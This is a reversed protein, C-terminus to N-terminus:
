WSVTFAGQTRLNYSRLQHQMAEKELQQAVHYKNTAGIILIGIHFRTLLPRLTKLVNNEVVLVDISLKESLHPLPKWHQDVFMLTKGQWIAIKLQHWVRMPFNLQQSAQTLTCVRWATIGLAAQSPQVQQSYQSSQVNLSPDVCLVAGRGKVFAYAHHRDLSYFIIKQQAQQSLDNRLRDYALLMVLMTAIVLYRLNKHYFFALLALLLGYLWLVVSFKFYIPAIVSYPLQQVGKIFTNVWAVVQALFWAIPVHLSGVFSTIIVMCGLCLIVFAAPVVVWNAILFYLPFQHFYYMSLPATTIQASLSLTTLIWLRDFLWYRFTLLRYLKAQLYLIGLVALYSLQFSVKFLLFPNIFLLLFSSLALIQYGNVKKGLGSAFAALSFMMTARLVSPSLGTVFAYFWLLLLTSCTVIYQYRGVYQLPALLLCLGWYITGVHLGSVALVHMTGADVYSTITPAKLADKYGLVLALVVARVEPHHLCQKFLAQSYRLARFSLTRILHPLRYPMIAVTDETVFHQHYIASLGLWTAYDFTHPNKPPPVVQPPGLLLLVDGDHVTLAAAKMWAVRVKGQMPKWKGQVRVSRITVTIYDYTAREHMDEVAIAEYAEIDTTCQTIHLPDYRVECTISRWYGLLLVIGLGWLGLWPSWAHFMTRPLQIMIIIYGLLMGALLGGMLWPPGEWGHSIWIGGMFALALRGFPYNSWPSAMLTM